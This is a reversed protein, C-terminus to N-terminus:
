MRYVARAGDALISFPDSCHSCYRQDRPRAMTGGSEPVPNMRDPFGPLVLRQMYASRPSKGIHRSVGTTTSEFQGTM